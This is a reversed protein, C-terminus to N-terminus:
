VVFACEDDDRVVPMKQVGDAGVDGVNVVVRNDVVGARIIVHHLM